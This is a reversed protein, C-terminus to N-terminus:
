DQATSAGIVGMLFFVILRRVSQRIIFPDVYISINDVSLANLSLFLMLIAPVRISTKAAPYSCLPPEKHRIKTDYLVKKSVDFPGTAYSM